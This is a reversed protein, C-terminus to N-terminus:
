VDIYCDVYVTIVDELLGYGLSEFANGVRRQKEQDIGSILVASM